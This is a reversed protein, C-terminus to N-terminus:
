DGDQLNLSPPLLYLAIQVLIFATFPFDTNSDTYVYEHGDTAWAICLSLGVLIVPILLIRIIPQINSNSWSFKKPM